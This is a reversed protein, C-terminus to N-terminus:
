FAGHNKRLAEVNELLAAHVKAWYDGGQPTRRWDMLTDIGLAIQRLADAKTDSKSQEGANFKKRLELVENVLATVEEPYARRQRKMELLTGERLGNINSM